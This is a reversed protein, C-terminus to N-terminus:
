KKIFKFSQKGCKVIYVGPALQSVDIVTEGVSAQLSSVKKGSVNYIDITGSAGVLTLSNNVFHKIMNDPKRDNITVDTVPTPDGSVFHIRLVEDALVRGDIDLVSFYMEDDTAVLMGVNSIEFFVNKDTVLYWNHDEESTVEVARIAAGTRRRIKSVTTNSGSKIYAAQARFNDGMINNSTWYYASNGVDHTNGDYSCGSFPLFITNGNPGTIKYGKVGDVTTSKWTCKSILEEWQKNTPLCLNTSYNYARDFKWNKRIDSGIIVCSEESGSCYEYNAWTYTDKTDTEGWAYYGGYDTMTTADINMDAWKVSLGLDVLEPSKATAILSLLFSLLWLTIWKFINTPKM